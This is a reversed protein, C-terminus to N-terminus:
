LPLSITIIALFLLGILQVRELRPGELTEDDYYEKRNAALEIESGIEERSQRINFYAYVAWGGVFLLVIFAAVSGTSVALMETREEQV